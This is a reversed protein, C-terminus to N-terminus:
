IWFKTSGAWMLFAGILGTAIWLFIKRSAKDLAHEGMHEAGSKWFPKIFASDDRLQHAADVIQAQIEERLTDLQRELAGVRDALDDDSRM